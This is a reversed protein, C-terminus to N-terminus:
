AVTLKLGHEYCPKRSAYNRIRVQPPSVTSLSNGKDAAFVDKSVQSSAFDLKELGVLYRNKCTFLELRKHELLNKFTKILELYSTSTVYIQRQLTQFVRDAILFLISHSLSWVSLTCCLMNQEKRNIQRKSVYVRMQGWWNGLILKWSESSVLVIFPM